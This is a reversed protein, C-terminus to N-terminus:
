YKKNAFLPIIENTLEECLASDFEKSHATKTIENFRNVMELSVDKCHDFLKKYAYNKNKLEIINEKLVRIEAVQSKLSKIENVQEKLAKIEVLQEKLISFKSKQTKKNSKQKKKM